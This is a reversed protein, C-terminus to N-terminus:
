NMRQSRLFIYPDISFESRITVPRIGMFIRLYSRKMEISWLFLKKDPSSAPIIEPLMETLLGNWCAAELQHASSHHNNRKSTNIECLLRKSFSTNTMLLVEQITTKMLRPKYFFIRNDKKFEKITEKLDKTFNDDHM